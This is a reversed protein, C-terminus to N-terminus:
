LVSFFPSFCYIKPAHAFGAWGEGRGGTLGGFSRSLDEGGMWM